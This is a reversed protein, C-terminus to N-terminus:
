PAEIKPDIEISLLGDTTVAAGSLFIVQNGVVIVLQGPAEVTLNEGLTVTDCAKVITTTDITGNLVRNNAFGCPGRSRIRM